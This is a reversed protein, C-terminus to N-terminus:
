VKRWNNFKLEAQLSQYSNEKIITEIEDKSKGSLIM